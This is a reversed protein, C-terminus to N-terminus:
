LTLAFVDMFAEWDEKECLRCLHGELFSLSFGKMGYLIVFKDKLERAHVRVIRSLIFMSIPRELHQYPIMKDTPMNLIQAFEEITPV